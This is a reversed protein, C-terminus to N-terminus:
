LTITAAPGRTQWSGPRFGIVAGRVLGGVEPLWGGAAKQVSPLAGKARAVSRARVDVSAPKAAITMEEGNAPNRGSRTKHAPKVPVTPQLLGGIRVEQANGLQELVIEDLAALARNTDNKSPEASEAVATV